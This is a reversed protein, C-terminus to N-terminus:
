APRVLLTFERMGYGDILETTSGLAQRCFAIWPAPDTRYLGPPEAGDPKTAMFNVIRDLKCRPALFVRREKASRPQATM